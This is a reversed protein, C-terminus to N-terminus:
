LTSQAGSPAVAEAEADVTPVKAAADESPVMRRILIDGNELVEPAHFAGGALSGGLPLIRHDGTSDLISMVGTFGPLGEGHVGHPAKGFLMSEMRVWSGDPDAAIQPLMAMMEDLRSAISAFPMPGSIGLSPPAMLDLLGQPRPTDKAAAPLALGAALAATVAFLRVSSM